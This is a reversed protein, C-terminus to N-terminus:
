SRTLLQAQKGKFQSYFPDSALQDYFSFEYPLNDFGETTFGLSFGNTIRIKPCLIVVESGDALSGAIKAGLFPQEDKSGIDLVNSKSVTTGAPLAKPLAEAFDLALASVVTLKRVYIHDDDGDQILVYDGVAFGTEDDVTLSTDSVSAPSTLEAAVTQATMTSGELGLSYAINKSTYEYAEMSARVVNGTMVSYVVQNKVGQTLETYAPEATVRFNKVLGISHDAPNLDFLDEPAGLMVTASGLMFASTNAEGAM